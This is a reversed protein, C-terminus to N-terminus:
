DIEEFIWKQATRTSIDLSTAVMKLIETDSMDEFEEKFKEYLEQVQTRKAEQKADMLTRHRRTPPDMRILNYNSAEGKYKRKFMQFNCDIDDQKLLYFVETADEFGAAGRTAYTMRRQLKGEKNFFPKGTHGLMVSVAHTPNCVQEIAELTARVSPSDNESGEGSFFATLPDFVIAQSGLDKVISQLYHIQEHQKVGKIVLARNTFTEPGLLRIQDDDGIQGSLGTQQWLNLLQGSNHEALIYLVQDLKETVELEGWLPQGTVLAHCIELAILSKGSDTEGSILLKGRKHLLGKILEPEPDPPKSNIPIALDRANIL